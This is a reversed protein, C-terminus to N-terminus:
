FLAQKLQWLATKARERVGLGSDEELAELKGLMGLKKLEQARLGCARADSDDDQWTLNSILACLALRVDKDKSSFHNGLLKLLDAQAIVVQRHRPVSAAIHVLIYIVAEVVKPQPYLVRTEVPSAGARRTGPHLVKAQLKKALIGFFRDQGLTNLLHDIMETSESALESSGGQGSPGILNRIFNLAQEQIALDDNRAKREPNLEAERLSMIRGEVELVWPAPKDEYGRPIGTSGYWFNIPPGDGRGMEVDGDLDDSRNGSGPFQREQNSKALHLADDETDDCILRVLWGSELEELCQKRIDTGVAHVLHKLAWMANLRLAATVSHAHECLVKMVGKSILTNKAPSVETVLNCVAATAAVQVDVDPYKMLQLLPLEVGHDVLATRLVSVSRSLVRVVHCAAIVVSLPNSGYGSTASNPLPGDPHDKKSRDKPGSPKGPTTSLSQVVYPVIDQDLFEKRYEDKGAALAAIAKLSAERLRVRQVLLLPEAEPGLQCDPSSSEVVMGTDPQPSWPPVSASSPVPEYADKLLKSFVKAAGSQFAIEQLREMDTILRSLVLLVVPVRESRAWTLSVSPSVTSYKTARVKTNQERAMDVLIPIVLSELKTTTKSRGPSGGYKSLTTTLGAAMLREVKPGERSLVALWPIMATDFIESAPEEGRTPSEHRSADQVPLGHGFGGCDSRSLHLANEGSKGASLPTSSSQQARFGHGQHRPAPPHVKGPDKERDETESQGTFVLCSFVALIAPSSELRAARYRSDSIIATLAELLSALNSRQSPLPPLLSALGTCQRAMRVMSTLSGHELRRAVVFRALERALLDFVESDALALASKEDRCLRGILATVLPVPYHWAPAAWDDAQWLIEGLDHLHEASFLGEALQQIEPPPFATVWLAADSINVLAKLAATVVLPPNTSPSINSLIAAIAGSAIIPEVFARGGLAFSSLVQLAELRVTEEESLWISDTPLKSPKGNTKSPLRSAQLIGVLSRLVGQGVWSKKKQVHGVIDTKLAVLASTQESYTRANQIFALLLPESDQAM